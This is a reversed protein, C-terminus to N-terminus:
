PAEWDASVLVGAGHAGLLPSLTATARDTSDDSRGLDMAFWVGAVAMAAVGSVLLVSAVVAQTQGRARVEEALRAREPSDVRRAAYDNQTSRMVAGTILGAAVVALGAGGLLLPGLPLANTGDRTGSQAPDSTATEVPPSTAESAETESGDTPSAKAPESAATSQAEPLLERLMAPLEESWAGGADRGTHERSVSSPERNAAADFYLLRLTATKGKRSIQSVLLVRADLRKAAEGFCRASQEPCDISLQVAELDLSAAPLVEFRETERLASRVSQEVASDAETVCQACIVLARPTDAARATLAHATVFLASIVALGHRRARVARSSRTPNAKGEGHYKM